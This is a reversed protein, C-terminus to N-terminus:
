KKAVIFTITLIKTEICTCDEMGAILEGEDEKIFSFIFKSRLPKRILVNKIKIKKPVKIIKHQQNFSSRLACTGV